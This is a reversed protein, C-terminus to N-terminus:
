KIPLHKKSFLYLLFVIKQCKPTERPQDKKLLLIQRESPSFFLVPKFLNLLYQKNECNQLHKGESRLIGREGLMNGNVSLNSMAWPTQFDLVLFSCM